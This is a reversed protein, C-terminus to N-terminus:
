PQYVWLNSPGAYCCPSQMYEIGTVYYLRGGTGVAASNSAPEPLSARARWVNTGPDYVMLTDSEFEIHQGGALYLKGNVAAAEPGKPLPGIGARKTWSNTAPDYADLESTSAPESCTPCWTYGSILYFKGGVVAGTGGAHDVPPAARTVWTNTAPNYRFFVKGNVKSAYCSVYVYLKGSIVGQAGGASCTAQPLDAKRAWTNTSPNYEFLTRTGVDNANFGGAVYLRGNIMSAGAPEDRGAPMARVVAWTNTSIDYADVRSLTNLIRRGGVLYLKGNVAGLAAGYRWYVSDKTTWTNGTSLTSTGEVVAEPGTLERDPSTDCAAILLCTSLLATACAPRSM